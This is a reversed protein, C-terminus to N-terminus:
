LRYLGSVPSRPMKSGTSLRSRWGCAMAAMLSTWRWGSWPQWWAWAVTLFKVVTRAAIYWKLGSMLISGKPRPPAARTTPRLSGHGASRSNQGHTRCSRFARRNTMSRKSGDLCTGPGHNVSLRRSASKRVFLTPWTSSSPVGSGVDARRGGCLGGGGAATSANNLSVADLRLHSAEASTRSRTMPTRPTLRQCAKRSCGSRSSRGVRERSRRQQQVRSRRRRRPARRGDGFVSLWSFSTTSRQPKSARRRESWGVCAHVDVAHVLPPELVGLQERSVGLEVAREVRRVAPVVDAHRADVRARVLELGLDREHEVVPVAIALRHRAVVVGVHGHQEGVGLEDVRGVADALGAEALVLGEDRAGDGDDVLRRVVM